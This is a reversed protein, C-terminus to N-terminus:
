RSSCTSRSRGAVALDGAFPVDLLREHCVTGELRLGPRRSQDLVTVRVDLLALVAKREELNMAQLREGAAEALEWLQMVRLSEARSAASWSELDALRQRAGTLQAAVERTAEQIDDADFGRVVLDTLVTKQARELQAVRKRLAEVEDQEVGVQGARLGLYDQALRLLRAKDGLLATVEAWVRDEVEDAMLLPDACRVEDRSTWQRRRCRYQRTDRDRRHVGGYPHGCPSFLRGSLPYCHNTARRGTARVDLAAQLAAYREENIIPEFRLLVPEGYKGSPVYSRHTKETNAWIVEGVLVRQRLIRRLNSHHWTKGTRTLIGATNLRRAVEGTTLGEDVIWSVMLRIATAESEHIVLSNTRGGSARYGFPSAGGSPWYGRAAMAHQGEAMRKVVANRDLEALLLMFKQLFDGILTSADFDQEVLVLEVGLTQLEKTMQTGVAADRALRSANLAYVRRVGTERAAALLRKWEPRDATTGTVGEERFLEDVEDGKTLAYAVCTQVQSDLSTGLVQEQSSVRVYCVTREQSRGPVARSM